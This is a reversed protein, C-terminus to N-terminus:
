ALNQGLLHYHLHFVTQGASNCNVVLYIQRRCYKEPALDQGRPTYAGGIGTKPFASLSPIHKQSHDAFASAGPNIDQFALTTKKTVINSGGKNVIKCFLCDTVSVSRWADKSFLGRVGSNMMDKTGAEMLFLEGDVHDQHAAAIRRAAPQRPAGGARGRGGCM